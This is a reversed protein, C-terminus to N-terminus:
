RDNNFVFARLNPTRHDTMAKMSTLMGSHTSPLGRAKESRVKGFRATWKASELHSSKAFPLDSKKLLSENSVKFFCGGRVERCGLQNKPKPYDSRFDPFPFQDIPDRPSDRRNL